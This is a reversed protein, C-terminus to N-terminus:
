KGRANANLWSFFAPNAANLVPMLPKKGFVPLETLVQLAIAAGIKSRSFYASIVQSYADEFAQQRRNFEAASVQALEPPLVVPGLPEADALPYFQLLQAEPYTAELYYRPASVKPTAPPLGLLRYGFVAVHGNTLPVPYSYAMEDPLSQVQQTHMLRESFRHLDSEALCAEKLLTVFLIGALMRRMKSRFVSAHFWTEQSRLMRAAFCTACSSRNVGTVAILTGSEIIRLQSMSFLADMCVPVVLAARRICTTNEVKGLVRGSAKTNGLM